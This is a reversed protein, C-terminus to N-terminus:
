IDKCQKLRFVELTDDIYFSWTLLPIVRKHKKEATRPFYNLHNMVIIKSASLLGLHCIELM